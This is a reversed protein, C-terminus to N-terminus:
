KIITKRIQLSNENASAIQKIIKSKRCEDIVLGRPWRNKEYVINKDIIDMHFCFSKFKEHSNEIEKSEYHTISREMLLKKVDEITMSNDVRGMNVPFLRPM